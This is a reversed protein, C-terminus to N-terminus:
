EFMPLWEEFLTDVGKGTFPEVSLAKGRQINPVASMPIVDISPQTEEADENCSSVDVPIPSCDLTISNGHSPATTLRHLQGQLKAIETDKLKIQDEHAM